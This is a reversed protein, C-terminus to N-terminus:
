PRPLFQPGQPPLTFAPDPEPYGYPRQPTPTPDGAATIGYAAALAVLGGPYGPGSAHFEWGNAVRVLEGCVVATEGPAPTLPLVALPTGRDTGATDQLILRPVSREAAFGGDASAALVIRTVSGDLRALEAEVTDRLGERDRRKSLRRVLGTPHRPQNYFVFDGESRVRGGTGLLLASLDLDPGGRRGDVGTPTWRLVARLGAVPLHITAGKDLAYTM